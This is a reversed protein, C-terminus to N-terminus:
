KFESVKKPGRCAETYMKYMKFVSLYPDLYKKLSNVRCYHSDIVACSSIRDQVEKLVITNEDTTVHNSHTGQKTPKLTGTASHTDITGLIFDRGVCLTDIYEYVHIGQTFTISYKFTM